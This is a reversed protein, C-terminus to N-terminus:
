LHCAVPSEQNYVPTLTMKRTVVVHSLPMKLIRCPRGEGGAVVGGGWGDGTRNQIYLWGLVSFTSKQRGTRLYNSMGLSSLCETSKQKRMHDCTFTNSARSRYRNGGKHPPWQYAKQTPVSVTSVILTAM